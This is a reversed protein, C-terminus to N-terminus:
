NYGYNYFGYNYEIKKKKIGPVYLCLPLIPSLLLFDIWLIVITHHPNTTSLCHVPLGPRAHRTYPQVKVGMVSTEDSDLKFM